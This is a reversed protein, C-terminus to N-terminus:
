SSACSPSRSRSTRPLDGRDEVPERDGSLKLHPASLRRIRRALGTTPSLLHRCRADDRAGRGSAARTFSYPASRGGRRGRDRVRRRRALFPPSGRPHLDAARERALAAPRRVGERSLCARADAARHLHPPTAPRAQAAGEASGGLPLPNHRCQDRNSREHASHASITACFSATKPPLSVAETPEGGVTSRRLSLNGPGTTAPATASRITPSRARTVSPALPPRGVRCPWKAARGTGAPRCSVQIVRSIMAYPNAM